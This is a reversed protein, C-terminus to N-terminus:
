PLCYPAEEFVKFLVVTYDLPVYFWHPQLFTQVEIKM